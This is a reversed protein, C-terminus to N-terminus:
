FLYLIYRISVFLICLTLIWKILNAPMYKQSMAGLYTGALGGLGFLIGLLWNPAISMGPYFPDLIQFFIVAVFSALFTGTLAAGAITYVPLRFIAVFIPAMIAGGGIGYTGGAIGVIASILMVKLNSVTYVDGYFDFVLKKLNFKVVKVTPMQESNGTDEKKRKMLDHFREETKSKLSKKGKQLIDQLLRLGIYLLVFGAFIKFNTPDPLYEVRLITGIFVGPLTGIAVMLTLHWLMRGEKVYRIIGGPIAIVNYLHNTASVAPSTFGLVSVQFPLLIFAGSVGGSSTFFSIFLSVLPPIFWYIDQGAVDIFM